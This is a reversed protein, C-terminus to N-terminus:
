DEKDKTPDAGIEDRSFKIYFSETDGSNNVDLEVEWTFETATEIRPADVVFAVKWSEGPGLEEDRGAATAVGYKGPGHRAERRWRSGARM